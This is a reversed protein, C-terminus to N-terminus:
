ARVPSRPEGVPPLRRLHRLDVLRRLVSFRRTRGPHQRSLEAARARLLNVLETTRHFPNAVVAGDILSLAARLQGDVEAVLRPGRPARASDLQALRELARDDEPSALRLTVAPASTTSLEHATASRSRAGRARRLEGALRHCEAERPLENIHERAVPYTIPTATLTREM